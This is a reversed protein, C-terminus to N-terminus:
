KDICANSFERPKERKSTERGSVSSVIHGKRRLGMLSSRPVKEGTASPSLVVILLGVPECDGGYGLRVVQPLFCLGLLGVNVARLQDAMKLDSIGWSTTESYRPDQLTVTKSRGIGIHGSFPVKFLPGLLIM